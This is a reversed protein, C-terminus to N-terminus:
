PGTLRPHSGLNVIKGLDMYSRALIKGLIRGLDQCLDQLIMCLDQLIKGLEQLIKGLDQLFNAHDWMIKLTAVRALTQGGVRM